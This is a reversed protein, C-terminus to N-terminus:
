APGEGKCDSSCGDNGLRNGDDCEEAPSQVEGDGCREGLRCDRDCQGYGGDNDGDDCQEGAMSDVREDGCHAGHKCGPACGAEGSTSYTTLNIGDDCEERGAEVQGDGCHAARQCATTCSGYSGDNKGDDCREDSTVIGDGCRPLCVSRASAFGDLTLNFNSYRAAREAHFLAIEYIKGAELALESARAADLTVSRATEFHVGGIDVALRRNIFVWVDDDGSFRLTQAEGRYEFYTRIESTFGLDHDEQPLERGAGVWGNPDGDWPFYAPNQIAYAGSAADRPLMLRGVKSVNIGPVDRYWQDFNAATTTQQSWPCVGTRPYENPYPAGRDDCVGTYVPKGDAGLNAEVMGATVDEGYFIEFDPHRVAGAAPASIFDRYVVPVQLVEPLAPQEVDCTYGAEVMCDKSCGDGDRTNGDDCAESDSPLLLGDGCRSQCAGATCDPEVECFPTCGDGVVSNGDDCAESGELVGDNCATTQCSAGAEPCVYGSELRCQASCGDGDAPSADDDECQEDGAVIGDGCRAATCSTGAPSCAYGPEISCDAGCGDGALANADDCNEPGAIRGDGCSVSSVCAEGPAPCVFDRDVAGCDASCGDGASSNGDDCAEEPQIKGDGCGEAAADSGADSEADLGADAVQADESSADVNADGAEADADSADQVTIGPAADEVTGECAGGALVGVLLCVSLFKSRTVVGSARFVQEDSGV